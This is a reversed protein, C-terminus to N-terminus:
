LCYGDDLTVLMYICSEREFECICNSWCAVNPDDLSKAAAKDALNDIRLNFSEGDVGLVDDGVVDLFLLWSLKYDILEM